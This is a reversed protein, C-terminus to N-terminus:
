GESSLSWRCSLKAQRRDPCPACAGSIEISIGQTKKKKHMYKTLKRYQKFEGTPDRALMARSLLGFPAALQALPEALAARLAPVAFKQADLGPSLSYRYRMLVEGQAAFRALSGNAAYDFEAERGLKEALIRSARALDNDGAGELAVLMLRSVLGDRLQAILLRQEATASHPLFASFDTEIRLTKAALLGLAAFCILTFGFRATSGAFIAGHVTRLSM